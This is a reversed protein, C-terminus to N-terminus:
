YGAEGPTVFQIGGTREAAALIQGMDPEGDPPRSADEVRDGIAEMFDELPGAPTEVFLLTAPTTGVNTFGHVIGKPVYVTSGPGARVIQDELVFEYQGALVYHTEDQTRHFPPPAGAGPGSVLEFISTGDTQGRVKFTMLQGLIWLSDGEGPLRCM